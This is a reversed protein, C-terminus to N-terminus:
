AHKRDKNRAKVNRYLLWRLLVELPGRMNKKELLFALGISTLWILIGIVAAGTSNLAVGLAFTVTPVILVVMAENFVYFTLSRKGLAVLARIALASRKVLPGLLGFLAAYGCGGAVGTLFNVSLILGTVIPGPELSLAGSIAFPLGGIVSISIGIVAIRKLQKRKTLLNKRAAWVGLLMPLIIPAIFHGVPTTVFRIIRELYSDGAPHPPSSLGLGGFYAMTILIIPMVILFYLTVWLMTKKFAQNSRFLLWGIMLSGVGYLALIDQGGIIVLNVFGFLILLWARRSLLQKTGRETNGRGLQSQIFLVLGFGFLVAFLPRARNHVFLEQFFNIGKDLSTAADIQIMMGAHALVILLLMVGRALDPAILREKTSKSGSSDTTAENGYKRDKM